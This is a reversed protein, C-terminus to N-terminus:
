CFLRGMRKKRQFLIPIGGLLLASPILYTDYLPIQNISHVDGDIYLLIGMSRLAHSSCSLRLDNRSSNGGDELLMLSAELRLSLVFAFLVKHTPSQFRLM